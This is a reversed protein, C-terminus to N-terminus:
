GNPVEKEVDSRLQGCQGALVDLIAGTIELLRIRELRSLEGSERNLGVTVLTLDLHKEKLTPLQNGLFEKHLRIALALDSRLDTTRLRAESMRGGEVYGHLEKAMRTLSGFDVEANHRKVSHEANEAAKKAGTAQWVAWLTFALGILGVSANSWDFWDRAIPNDPLFMRM